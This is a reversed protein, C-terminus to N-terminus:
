EPSILINMMQLSNLATRRLGNEQPLYQSDYGSFTTFVKLPNEKIYKDMIFLKVCYIYCFILGVNNTLRMM